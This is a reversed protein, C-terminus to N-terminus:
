PSSFSGAGAWGERVPFSRSPESRGTIVYRAQGLYKMVTILHLSDNCHAGETKTM